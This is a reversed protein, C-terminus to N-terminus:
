QIAMQSNFGPNDDAFAWTPDLHNQKRISRFAIHTMEHNWLWEHIWIPAITRLRQFRLWITSKAVRTVKVNPPHGPFVVPCRMGGIRQADNQQWRHIWVTTVTRFNEIGTLITLRDVRTVKINSPHGRLVISYMNQRFSLIVRLFFPFRALNSAVVQFTPMITRKHTM